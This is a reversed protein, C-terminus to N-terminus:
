KRNASHQCIPVIQVFTMELKRKWKVKPMKLIIPSLFCWEVVSYCLRLFKTLTGHGSWNTPLIARFRLRFIKGFDELQRWVDLDCFILSWFWKKFNNGSENEYLNILMSCFYNCCTFENWVVFFNSISLLVSAETGGM